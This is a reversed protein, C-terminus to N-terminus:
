SVLTAVQTAPMKLTADVEISDVERPAAKADQKEPEKFKVDVVAKASAAKAAELFSKAIYFKKQAFAADADNQPTPDCVPLTKAFESEKEFLAKYPKALQNETEQRLGSVFSALDGQPRKRFGES